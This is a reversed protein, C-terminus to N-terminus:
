AAVERESSLSVSDENRKRNSESIKELRRCLRASWDSGIGKLASMSIQKEDTIFKVLDGIMVEEESRPASWEEGQCTREYIEGRWRNLYALDTAKLLASLFVFAGSLLLGRDHLVIAEERGRLMKEAELPDCIEDTFVSMFFAEVFIDRGWLPGMVNLVENSIEFPARSTSDSGTKALIKKALRAATQFREALLVFKPVYFVEYKKLRELEVPTFFDLPAKVSVLKENRKMVVYVPAMMLAFPKVSAVSCRVMEDVAEILLKKEDFLM